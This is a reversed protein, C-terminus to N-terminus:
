KGSNGSSTKARTTRRGSSSTAASTSTKQTAGSPSSSGSNKAEQGSPALLRGFELWIATMHAPHAAQLFTLSSDGALGQTDAAFPTPHGEWGLLVHRVTEIKLVEYFFEQDAKMAAYRPYHQQLVEGAHDILEGPENLMEFRQGDDPEKIARQRLGLIEEVITEATEMPASEAIERIGEAMVTLVDLEAVYRAGASRVARDIRPKTFRGPVRLLYAIREGEPRAEQDRPEFRHRMGTSLLKAM